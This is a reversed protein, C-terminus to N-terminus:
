AARPSARKGKAPKVKARRPRYVDPRLYEREIGTIEEIAFVHNLPIRTWRYVGQHSIGLKRALPVVGGTIRIVEKVMDDM